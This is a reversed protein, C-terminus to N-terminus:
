EYHHSNGTNMIELLRQRIKVGEQNEHETKISISTYRDNFLNDCQIYGNILAAFM